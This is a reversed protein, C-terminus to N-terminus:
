LIACELLDACPNGGAPIQAEAEASSSLVEQPFPQGKLFATTAAGFTSPAERALNPWHGTAFWILSAGNMAAHLNKSSTPPSIGDFSAAFIACASYLPSTTSAAVTPAAATTAYDSRPADSLLKGKENNPSPPPVPEGKPMPPPAGTANRLREISAHKARAEYQYNRGEVGGPVSTLNAEMQRMFFQAGQGQESELWSYGRRTDAILLMQDCREDASMDLLKTLPYSGEGGAEQDVDSAPCVLLVRQFTLGSSQKLMLEQALAGGFSFGILNFTDWRVHRLLALIDEVFVSMTPAPWPADASQKSSNGIGRYDFSLICFDKTLSLGPGSLFPKLDKLSTNSPPLVLLRPLSVPGWVEFHLTVGPSVDVTPM